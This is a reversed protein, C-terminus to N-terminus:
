EAPGEPVMAGLGDLNPSLRETPNGLGLEVSKVGGVVPRRGPLNARQLGVQVGQGVLAQDKPAEALGAAMGLGQEQPHRSAGLLDAAHVAAALLCGLLDGEQVAVKDVPNRDVCALRKRLKKESTQAEGIGVAAGCEGVLARHAVHAVDDPM